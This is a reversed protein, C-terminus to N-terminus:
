AAREAGLKSRADDVEAVIDAVALVMGERMTTDSLPLKRILTELVALRSLANDLRQSATM